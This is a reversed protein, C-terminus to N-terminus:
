DSKFFNFLGKVAFINEKIDYYSRTKLLRQVIYKPRFYFRKYAKKYYERVKEESLNPLKVTYQSYDYQDWTKESLYGKEKAWLYLETGPYASAINFQVMDPNTELAFNITKEMTEETEGQNGFMLSIRARIGGKKTMKIVERARNLDIDKQINKLITEDASEIGYCISYCGAKKMIKLLEEDILNIRTMCSWSIDLMEDIISNCIKVVKGRFLTFVDDYFSIEKINYREKLFKIEALINEASRTRINKEKIGSYCFTCRGPCGRSTLMIMAPLRKYNGLAPQYKHMPLLHYAPFPLEDLNQVPMRDKNQIIKGDRNKYLIGDVKSLDNIKCLDVFTYESEGWAVVDVYKNEICEQPMVTAHTGGFVVLSEPLTKKAIEAIHWAENITPTIASIGVIQPNIERIKSALKDSSFHEVKLDLISVPIDHKELLAAAAALGLPPYNSAVERWISGETHTYAPNILLINKTM